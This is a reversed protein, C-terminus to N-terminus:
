IDETSVVRLPRSDADVTNKSKLKLGDITYGEHCMGIWNKENRYGKVIDTKAWSGDEMKFHIRCYMGETKSPTWDGVKIITGKM